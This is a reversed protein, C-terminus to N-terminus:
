YKKKYEEKLEEVAEDIIKIGVTRNVDEPSILYYCSGKLDSKVVDCIIDIVKHKLEDIGDAGLLSYLPTKSIEREICELGREEGM